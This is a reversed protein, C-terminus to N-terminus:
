AEEETVDHSVADPIEKGHSGEMRSFQGTFFQVQWPNVHIDALTRVGMAGYQRVLGEFNVYPSDGMGFRQGAVAHYVVSGYHIKPVWHTRTGYYYHYGLLLSDDEFAQMGTLFRADYGGVAKLVEARHICPLTFGRETRDGQFQALFGNREEPERDPISPDSVIGCGIVPEEPHLSLYDVLAKEWHPVFIMDPHLESIYEAEPFHQYIYSFCSQRGVVTGTNTGNGIVIGHLRFSTLYEQLEQNTLGGQNFIVLTTYESEELSKLCTEVMHLDQMSSEERVLLLLTHILRM